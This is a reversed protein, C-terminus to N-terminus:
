AGIPNVFDPHGVVMRTNFECEVGDSDMALFYTGTRPDAPDPLQTVVCGSEFPTDFRDGVELHRPDTWRPYERKGFEELSPENGTVAVHNRWNNNIM